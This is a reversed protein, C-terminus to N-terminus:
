KQCDIYICKLPLILLLSKGLIKGAASVPADPMVKTSGERYYDLDEFLEKTSSPPKPKLAAKQRM